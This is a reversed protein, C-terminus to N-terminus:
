GQGPPRRTWEPPPEGRLARDLTANSTIGLIEKIERRSRGARRLGIARERLQQSAAQRRATSPRALDISNMNSYDLSTGVFDARAPHAPPFVAGHALNLPALETLTM